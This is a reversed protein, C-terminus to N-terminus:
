FLLVATSHNLPLLLAHFFPNLHGCSEDNTGSSGSCACGKRQAMSLIKLNSNYVNTKLKFGITLLQNFSQGRRRGILPICLRNFM